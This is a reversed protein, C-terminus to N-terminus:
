ESAIGFQWDFIRELADSDFRGTEEDYVKENRRAIEEAPWSPTGNKFLREKLYDMRQYIEWRPPADKEKGASALMRELLFDVDGETIAEIKLGYTMCFGHATIRGRHEYFMDWRGNFVAIMAWLLHSRLTDVWGAADAVTAKGKNIQPLFYHTQFHDFLSGDGVPDKTKGCFRSIM